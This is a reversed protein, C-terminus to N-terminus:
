TFSAVDILWTQQSPTYTQYLSRPLVLQLRKAAM